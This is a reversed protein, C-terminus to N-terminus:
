EVTFKVTRPYCLNKSKKCTVCTMILNPRKSKKVKKTPVKQYKGINGRNGRRLKKRAQAGIMSQAKKKVEKVKFTSKSKCSYCTRVLTSPICVM